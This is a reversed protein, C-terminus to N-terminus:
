TAAKYNRKYYFTLCICKAWVVAMLKIATGNHQSVTRSENENKYMWSLYPWINSQSYQRVQCM